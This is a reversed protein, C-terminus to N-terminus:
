TGEMNASSPDDPDAIEAFMKEAAAENIGSLSSSHSKKKKSNWMKKDAAKRKGRPMSKLSSSPFLDIYTPSKCPRQVVRYCVVVVVVLPPYCDSYPTNPLLPPATQKQQQEQRHHNINKTNPIFNELCAM